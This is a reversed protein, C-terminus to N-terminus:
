KGKKPGSESAVWLGGVITKVAMHAPLSAFFKEIIRLSPEASKQGRLWMLVSAATRDHACRVLASMLDGRLQEGYISGSYLSGVCASQFLAPIDIPEAM